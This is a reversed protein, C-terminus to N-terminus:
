DSQSSGENGSSEDEDARTEETTESDSLQMQNEEETEMLKRKRARQCNRRHITIVRNACESCFWQKCAGCIKWDDQVGVSKFCSQYSLCVCCQSDDALCSDPILNRAKIIQKRKQAQKSREIQRLEKKEERQKKKEEKKKKDAQKKEKQAKKEAKKNDLYQFFETATLLVSRQHRTGLEPLQKREKNEEKLEQEKSKPIGAKSMAEEEVKEGRHTKALKAIALKIDEEQESSVKESYGPIQSLIQDV